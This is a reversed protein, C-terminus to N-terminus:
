LQYSASTTPMRWHGLAHLLVNDPDGSQNQHFEYFLGHGDHLREADQLFLLDPSQQKSVMFISYEKLLKDCQPKHDLSLDRFGDPVPASVM